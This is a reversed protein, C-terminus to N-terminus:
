YDCIESDPSGDIHIEPFISTANLAQPSFILLSEENCHFYIYFLNLLFLNWCLSMEGETQNYDTYFFLYNKLIM